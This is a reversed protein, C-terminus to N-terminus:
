SVNDLRLFAARNNAIWPRWWGGYAQNLSWPHKEYNVFVGSVPRGDIEAVTSALTTGWWPMPDAEAQTEAKIGVIYNDAWLDIFTPTQPDTTPDLYSSMGVIIEFDDSGDPMYGLLGAIDATTIPRQPGDGFLAAKVNTNAVMALWSSMGMAVFNPARGNAQRVVEADANIDAIPDADSTGPTTQTDWKVSTTGFFGAAYGATDQALTATDFERSLEVGMWCHRRDRELMAIGGSTAANIEDPDRPVRLGYRDLEITQYTVGWDVQNPETQLAHKANVLRAAEAGYKPARYTNWPMDSQYWPMIRHGIFGAPLPYGQALATNIWDMDFQLEQLWPNM